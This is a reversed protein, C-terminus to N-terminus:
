LLYKGLRQHGQAFITEEKARNLDFEIHDQIYM